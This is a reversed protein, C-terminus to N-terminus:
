SLPHYRAEIERAAQAAGLVSPVYIEVIIDNRPAPWDDLEGRYISRLHCLVACVWHIMAAQGTMM